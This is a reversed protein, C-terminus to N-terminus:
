SDHKCWGRSATGQQLNAELEFICADSVSQQHKLRLVNSVPPSSVEREKMVARLAALAALVLVAM